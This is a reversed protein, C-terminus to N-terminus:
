LEMKAKQWLAELDKLALSNMDKSSLRAEREMHRFRREFKANGRRLAQEADIGYHRAYNVLTFLLDGFEDEIAQTNAPALLSQDLETIEEDFKARVGSVEPWDFGIKAARKQLKMARLLAPFGIPVDDLISEDEGRIAARESRELSKQREWNDVMSTATQVTANGFIHPHRKIMKDTIANAVDDFDFLDDEAAMRTHYAIQLLLDGLETKLDQWDKREIADAVEYAEEITYPAITSFDQEIDWPCGNQPDRLKAMVDLLRDIGRDGKPPPKLRTM